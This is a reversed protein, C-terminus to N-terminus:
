KVQGPVLVSTELLKVRRVAACIELASGPVCLGRDSEIGGESGIAMAEDRIGTRYWVRVRRCNLLRRSPITVRVPPTQPLALREEDDCDDDCDRLASEGAGCSERRAGSVLGSWSVCSVSEFM